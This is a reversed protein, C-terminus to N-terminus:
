SSRTETSRQAKSFAVDSNRNGEVIIWDTSSSRAFADVDESLFIRIDKREVRAGRQPQNVFTYDLAAEYSGFKAIRAGAGVVSGSKCLRRLQVWETIYVGPKGEFNRGVWPIAYFWTDRGGDFGDLHHLATASAM